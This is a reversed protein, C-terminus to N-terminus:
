GAAAVIQQNTMGEQKINEELYVGIITDVIEEVKSQCGVKLTISEQLV